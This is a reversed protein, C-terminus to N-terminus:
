KTNMEVCIAHYIDFCGRKCLKVNCIQCAKLFNTRNGCWCCLNTLRFSFIRSVPTGDVLDQEIASQINPIAKKIFIDRIKEETTGMTKRIYEVIVDKLLIPIQCKINGKLLARYCEMVNFEVIGKLEDSFITESM